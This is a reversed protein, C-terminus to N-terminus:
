HCANGMCTAYDGAAVDDAATEAAYSATCANNWATIALGTCTAHGQSNTPYNHDCVGLADLMDAGADMRANCAALAATQCATARNSECTGAEGGDRTTGGPCADVSPPGPIEFPGHCRGVPHAPGQAHSLPLPSLGFLLAAIALVSLALLVKKLM